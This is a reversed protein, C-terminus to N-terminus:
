PCNVLLNFPFDAPQIGSNGVVAPYGLNVFVESTAAPSVFTYAVGNTNVSDSTVNAGISVLVVCRSVNVSFNVGYDGVDGHNTSAVGRGRVLHGDANVVAWLQRVPSSLTQVTAPVTAAPADNVSQRIVAGTRKVTIGPQRGNSTSAAAAILPVTLCLVSGVAVVVLKKIKGSTIERM